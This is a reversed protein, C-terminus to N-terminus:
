TNACQYGVEAGFLQFAQSGVGDGVSIPIQVLHDQGLQAGDLNVLHLRGVYHVHERGRFAGPRDALADQGRRLLKKGVRAAQAKDVGVRGGAHIQHGEHPRPRRDLAADHQGFRLQAAQEGADLVDARLVRQREADQQGGADSRHLQRLGSPLEDVQLAARPPHWFFVDLDAAAERPRKRRGDGAPEPLQLGQGARRFPHQRGPVLAAPAVLAAVCMYAFGGQPSGDPAGEVAAVQVDAPEGRVVRAADGLAM